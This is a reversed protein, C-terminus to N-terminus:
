LVTPNFFFKFSSSFYLKLLGRLCFCIEIQSLLIKRECKLLANRKRIQM